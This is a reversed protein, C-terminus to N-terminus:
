EGGYRLKTIPRSIQKHFQEHTYIRAMTRSYYKGACTAYTGTIEGTLMESMQFAFGDEFSKSWLPPLAELADDFETCTIERWNTTYHGEVAKHYEEFTVVKHELLDFPKFESWRGVFGGGEKKKLIDVCHPRGSDDVRMLVHNYESLDM